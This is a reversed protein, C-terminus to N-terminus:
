ALLYLRVLWGSVVDALNCDRQIHVNIAPQQGEGPEILIVSSSGPAFKQISPNFSALCKYTRNEIRCAPLLRLTTGAKISANKRLIKESAYDIVEGLPIEVYSYDSSFRHVAEGEMTLGLYTSLRNGRVLNLFASDLSM